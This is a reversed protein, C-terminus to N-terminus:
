QKLVAKGVPWIIEAVVRGAGRRHKRIVRQRSKGGTKKQTTPPRAPSRRLNARSPCGSSRQVAQM